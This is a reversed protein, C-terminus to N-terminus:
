CLLTIKLTIRGKPKVSTRLTIVRDFHLDSRLVLLPNGFIVMM